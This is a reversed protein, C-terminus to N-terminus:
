FPNDPPTDSGKDFIDGVAAKFIVCIILIPTLLGVIVVLAAAQTTAAVPPAVVYLLTVAAMTALLTAILAILLGILINMINLVGSVTLNYINMMTYLATTLIGNMKGLMDRMKVVIEVIPIIFNVIKNYLEEFIESLQNKLWNMLEIVAMIMELVSDLFVITLYLIFELPMMIISFVATMDQQICYNFNEFTTESTTQGPVPMILGAFPMIIPSCKNQNWNYKLENIIAKYTAFSVIGLVIGFIMITILVDTGYMGLYGINEYMSVIKSDVDMYM